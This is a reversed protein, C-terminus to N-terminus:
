RSRSTEVAMSKTRTKLKEPQELLRHDNMAVPSSRSSTCMYLNPGFTADVLEHCIHLLVDEFYM